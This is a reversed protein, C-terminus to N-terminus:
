RTFDCCNRNLSLRAEWSIPLPHDALLAPVSLHAALSALIPPVIELFNPPGLILLGKLVMEDLDDEKWCILHCACFMSVNGWFVWIALVAHACLNCPSRASAANFIVHEACGIEAVNDGCIM